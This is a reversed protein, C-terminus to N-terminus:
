SGSGEVKGITAAPREGALAPRRFLHFWGSESGVLLDVRGTRDWDIPWPRLSHVSHKIDAGWLKMREGPAYAPEAKTGQNRFLWVSECTGIIVDWVGRGDWDCVAHTIGWLRGICEYVTRRSFDSGDLMKLTAIRKVVLPANPSDDVPSFVALKEDFGCGVLDCRGDGDWDTVCPYSYQGVSVRGNIQRLPGSDRLVPNGPKEGVDELCRFFCNKEMTIFGRFAETCYYRGSVINYRGGALLGADVLHPTENTGENRFLRMSQGCDKTEGILVDWVGDGNWDAVCGQAGGKLSLPSGDPMTVPLPKGFRPSKGAPASNEFVLISNDYYPGFIHGLPSMDQLCRMCAVLHWRGDGYLDALHVDGAGTQGGPGILEALDVRETVTLLPLGNRDRRGTNRYVTIENRGYPKGILDILGDGDWDVADFVQTDIYEGDAKLRVFDDFLPDANSGINRFFWTGHYPFGITNAYTSGQILDLTGDGDWDVFVPMQVAIAVDLPDATGSNYRLTDGNGVLAIKQPAPFPGRDASDFYVRYRVDRPDEILWSIEGEDAWAFHESLAHSVASEFGSDDICVVRVSCPAFASRNGASALLRGFDIHMAFPTFPETVSRRDVMVAASYRQQHHGM